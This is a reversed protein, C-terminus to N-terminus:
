RWNRAPKGILALLVASALLAAAPEPVVTFEFVRDMGTVVASNGALGVGLGYSGDTSALSPLLETLAQGTTWDFVFAEGTGSGILVRHGQIDLARGFIDSVSASNPHTLKALQAGNELDFVYAAGRDETGVDERPVQIVANRGDVRVHLGFNDHIDIDDPVIKRTETYTSLDFVYAAGTHTGREGDSNAGVVVQSDNLDVSIGFQSSTDSPQLRTLQAGTTANFLYANGWSGVAIVNGHIAVDTGLQFNERPTSSVLRHLLQGTQLNYVYAAGANAAIRGGPLAVHESAGIVVRDGDIALSVGFNFNPNDSPTPRTLTHILEGTDARYIYVSRVPDTPGYGGGVAIYDPSM